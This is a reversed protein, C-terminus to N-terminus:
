TRRTSPCRPPRPRQCSQTRPSEALAKKLDQLEASTTLRDVMKYSERDCDYARNVDGRISICWAARADKLGLLCLSSDGRDQLTDATGLFRHIGDQFRHGRVVPKGHLLKGSEQLNRSSHDSCHADSSNATRSGFLIIQL